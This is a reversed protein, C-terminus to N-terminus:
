TGAQVILPADIRDTLTTVSVDATQMVAVLEDSSMPTDDSLPTVDFLVVMRAKVDEPLRRKVVVGLQPKSM